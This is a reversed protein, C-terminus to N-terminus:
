NLYGPMKTFCRIWANSPCAVVARFNESVACSTYGSALLMIRGPRAGPTPPCMGSGLFYFFRTIMKKRKESVDQLKKAIKGGYKM